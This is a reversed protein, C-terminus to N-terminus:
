RETFFAEAGSRAVGMYASHGQYETLPRGIETDYHDLISRFYGEAEDERGMSLTAQAAVELGLIHNSEAELMQLATNLSAEFDGVARHLLALHFLGDLDLPRAAEYAQMAMPMFQRAQATDGSENATMARNFLQDATQRPSTSSFDMPAQPPPVAAGAPQVPGPSPVINWGVVVVLAFAAAGAIWWPLDTRQDGVASPARDPQNRKSATPTGCQSCFGGGPPMEAGCGNCFKGGLSSGCHQCYSGSAHKGCEPCLSRKKGSM